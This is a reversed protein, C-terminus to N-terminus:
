LAKDGYKTTFIGEFICSGEITTVGDRTMKMMMMITMVTM